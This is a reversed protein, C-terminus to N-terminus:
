VTAVEVLFTELLERSVAIEGGFTAAVALRELIEQQHPTLAGLDARQEKEVLLAELLERPLVTEGESTLSLTRAVQAPQM